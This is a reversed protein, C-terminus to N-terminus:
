PSEKQVGPVRQDLTLRCDHRLRGLVPCPLLGCAAPLTRRPGGRWLAPAASKEPHFRHTWASSGGTHAPWLHTEYRRLRAGCDTSIRVMRPAMLVRTKIAVMVM